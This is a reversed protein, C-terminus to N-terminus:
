WLPNRTLIAVTMGFFFCLTSITVAALALRQYRGGIGAAVLSLVLCVPVLRLPHWALGILSTFIAFASLLGAVAESPSQRDAPAASM